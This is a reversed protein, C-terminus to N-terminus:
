VRFGLVRFGLVGFGWIDGKLPIGLSAFGPRPCGGVRPRCKCSPGIGRWPGLYCPGKLPTRPPHIYIYIYIPVIYPDLSGFLLSWRMRSTVSANRPAKQAFKCTVSQSSCRPGEHNPGDRRPSQQVCELRVPELRASSM